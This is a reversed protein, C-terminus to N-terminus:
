SRTLSVWTFRSFDMWCTRSFWGGSRTNWNKWLTVLWVIACWLVGLHNSEYLVVSRQHLQRSRSKSLLSTICNWGPFGYSYYVTDFELDCLQFRVTDHETNGHIGLRDSDTQLRHFLILSNQLLLSVVASVFWKLFCKWSSSISTKELNTLNQFILNVFSKQYLKM